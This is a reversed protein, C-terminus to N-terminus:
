HYFGEKRSRGGERAELLSEGPMIWAENGGNDIQPSSILGVRSSAGGIPEGGKLPLWRMRLRVKGQHQFIGTIKKGWHKILVM